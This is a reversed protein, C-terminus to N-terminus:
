KAHKYKIMHKCCQEVWGNKRASSYAGASKKIWDSVKVYKLADEKCKKYDNWYGSPNKNKILMHKGCEKTWKNRQAVGYSSVSKKSWDQKTKYKLSEKVCREFTWYDSLPSKKGKKWGFTEIIKNLLNLRIAAQYANNNHKSWDYASKYKSKEPM